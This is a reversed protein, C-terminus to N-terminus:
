VHARGIQGSIDLNGGETLSEIRNNDLINYDIFLALIVFIVAVFIALISYERRLFAMAGDHILAGIERVADVGAPRSTVRNFLFVAGALAFLGSALSLYLATM